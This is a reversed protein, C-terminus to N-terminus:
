LAINFVTAFVQISGPFEYGTANNLTEVAGLLELVALLTIGLFYVFGVSIGTHAGISRSIMYYPGGRGVSGGSSAIASLSISTLCANTFSLIVILMAIGIGANGVVFYFRLFILVGWMNECTPIMVGIFWGLKHVPESEDKVPEEAYV